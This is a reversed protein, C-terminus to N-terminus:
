SRSRRPPRLASLASAAAPPTFIKGIANLLLRRHSTFGQGDTALGRGVPTVAAIDNPGFHEDLFQRLFRRTRLAACGDLDDLAFLYVRGPPGANSQVDPEGLTEEYEERREIPIDVAQFTTIPQPKGNEILEFDEVTLGTVPTGEADTVFVDIEVADIKSRFTVAPGDQSPRAEPSGTQQGLLATTSVACLAIAISLRTNM